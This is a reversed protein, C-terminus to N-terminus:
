QPHQRARCLSCVNYSSTVCNIYCRDCIGHSCIYRRILSCTELCVPCDGDFINVNAETNSNISSNSNRIGMLREIERERRRQRELMNLRHPELEPYLYNRRRVYFALNRLNEGYRQCLKINSPVLAPASEPPGDIEYHGSEVIDLEDVNINFQTALQPRITEIFQTITFHPNVHFQLTRTTFIEKFCVPHSHLGLM